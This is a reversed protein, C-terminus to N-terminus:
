GCREKCLLLYGGFWLAGIVAATVISCGNKNEQPENPLPHIHVVHQHPPAEQMASFSRSARFDTLPLNRLTHPLTQIPTANITLARLPLHGMEQPLHRVATYDLYISHLNRLNSIGAPLLKIGRNCAVDLICLETLQCIEEPIYSINNGYLNIDRLGTFYKIEPPLGYLDCCNVDISTIHGLQDQNAEFWDRMQNATTWRSAATWADWQADTWTERVHLTPFHITTASAPMIRIICEWFDVLEDDMKEQAAEQIAEQM